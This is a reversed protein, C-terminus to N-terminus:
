FRALKLASELRSVWDVHLGLGQKVADVGSKAETKEELHTLAWILADPDTATSCLNNKVLVDEYVNHGVQVTPIGALVFQPGMSTQYYLMGDAIVQADDSNSESVFFRPAKGNQGNQMVWESVLKADLNKEKACPHQQLVVIFRSLDEQKSAKALFDLFAPFAKSFYEENNGGAYVLVKQGQDKVSYKSFFQSRLTNHDSLRRNAIKEAQGIPYYGIGARNEPAIFVEQFPAEYVATKALHANAFLVGQAAKMVKGAVASYGGPVYGEPNEYYALRLALPAHESLAGQLAIDFAHGVDTIVVSAEVCKKAIQSAAEGESSNELSFSSAVKLRREEFKKLAPGGAHIEVKYGKKGLEEAFTAFHDASAGHCAIFYVSAASFLVSM